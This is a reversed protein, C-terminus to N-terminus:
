LAIVGLRPELFDLHMLVGLALTSEIDGDNLVNGDRGLIVLLVLSFPGHDSWVVRLFVDLDRGELDVSVDLVTLVGEFRESGGVAIEVNFFGFPGFDEIFLFM